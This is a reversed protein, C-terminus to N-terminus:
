IATVWENRADAILRAPDPQMVERELSAYYAADAAEFSEM